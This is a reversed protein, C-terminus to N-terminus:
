AVWVRGVFDGGTLKWVLARLYFRFVVLVSEWMRGFEFPRDKHSHIIRSDRALVVKYGRKTMELAWVVDESIPVSGDFPIQDLLEKRIAASAGHFMIGLALKKFIPRFRSYQFFYTIKHEWSLEELIPYSYAAAIKPDSFPKLLKELWRDDAPIVDGSLRVLFKGGAQQAGLNFAHAYNFNKRDYCIIKVPFQRLYELAGDTSGSDVIIIEFDKHTQGFIAPISRELFKKQNRTIVVISVDTM